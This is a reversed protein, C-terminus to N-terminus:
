PFRSWDSIIKSVFSSFDSQKFDISLQNTIKPFKINYDAPAIKKYENIAEIMKRNTLQIVESRNYGSYLNLLKTLSETGVLNQFVEQDAKHFTGDRVSAVAALWMMLNDCAESIRNRAPGDVYKESDRTIRQDIKVLSEGGSNGSIKSYEESMSFWVLARCRMVLSPHTSNEGIYMKTDDKQGRMQDLFSGVDFRLLDDELGSILKMLSHIAVDLSGCAVLGVRDVSIEQARSKILHEDSEVDSKKEINHGLLFHGLEHGIAFRLEDKSMLKILASSLWIVCEEKNDSFCTAQTEPSSYVYANVSDSIIQLRSFVSKLVEYIEPILKDTIRLGSQAIHRNIRQTEFGDLSQPIAKADGSYRINEALRFATNLKNLM